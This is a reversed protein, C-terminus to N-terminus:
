REAPIGLTLVAAVEHQNTRQLPTPPRMRNVTPHEAPDKTDALWTGNAGGGGTTVVLFPDLLQWISGLPACGDWTSFWQRVTQHCSCPQSPGEISM